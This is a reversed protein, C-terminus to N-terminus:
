AGQIEKIAQQAVSRNASSVDSVSMQSLASLAEISKLQGLAKACCERMFDDEDNLGALLQQMIEPGLDGIKGLAEAARGRVIRDGANLAQSLVAGAQPGGIIELLLVAKRRAYLKEQENLLIASIVPIAGAPDLALVRQHWTQEEDSPELLNRVENEIQGTM